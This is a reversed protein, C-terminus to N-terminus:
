NDSYRIRVQSNFDVQGNDSIVLIGLNNSRIESLAGTVSSYEVPINCKMYWSKTKGHQLSAASFAATASIDVTKDMLIRFRNKNSLNNFSLYAATELIDTVTAAAGNAQKDHYLVVRLGDDTQAPVASSTLVGTFRLNISRVTIKRGIRQSEGTGAAIAILSNSVISGTNPVTIAPTTDHFKLETSGLPPYRGYYGVKRVYGKAPRYSATRRRKFRSLPAKRHVRLPM